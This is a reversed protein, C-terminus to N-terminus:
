SGKRPERRWFTGFFSDLMSPKPIEVKPGEHWQGEQREALWKQREQEAQLLRRDLDEAQDEALAQRLSALTASFTDIWRLLNDRNSLYLQAQPAVGGPGLRTAAAFAPGAVKRLERWAPQQIVTELLALAVLGPLHDVGALLGDHEVADLFLPRAGLITVLDTVLKVSEADARSSPVVCFLGRQFLDARAAEIGGQGDASGGLIPDTGVFHVQEPLHQDAWALVPGKLASTDMVVCGPRLYPGIAELTAEIGEVPIALIVLDSKECASILNWDVRDVAGRSKAENSALRERDHGILASTVEAQRLALGISGGILGLGVISIRPKPTSV